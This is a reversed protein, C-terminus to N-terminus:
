PGPPYRPTRTLEGIAHELLEHLQTITGILSVGTGQPGLHVIGLEPRDESWGPPSVRAMQALDIDDVDTFDLYAHDAWLRPQTM